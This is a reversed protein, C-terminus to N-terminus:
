FTVSHEALSGPVYAHPREKKRDIGVGKIIEEPGMAKMDDGHPHSM